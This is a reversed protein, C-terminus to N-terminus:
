RSRLSSRKRPAINIRDGLCIEANNGTAVITLRKPGLAAQRIALDVFDDLSLRLASACKTAIKQTDPKLEINM